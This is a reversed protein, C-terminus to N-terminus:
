SKYFLYSTLCNTAGLAIVMGCIISINEKVMPFTCWSLNQNLTSTTEWLIILAISVTGHSLFSTIANLLWYRKRKMDHEIKQKTDFGDEYWFFREIPKLTPGVLTGGIIGFGKFQIGALERKCFNSCFAREFVAKQVTSQSIWWIWIIPFISYVRLLTAMMVFSLCRFLISIFVMPTCKVRLCIIDFMKLDLEGGMGNGLILNLTVSVVSAILSLIQILGLFYKVANSKYMCPFLYEISRSRWEFLM